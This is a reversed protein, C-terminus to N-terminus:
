HAWDVPSAIETYPCGCQKAFLWVVKIHSHDVGPEYQDLGTRLLNQLAVMHHSLTESWQLVTLQVWVSTGQSRQPGPVVDCSLASAPISHLRILDRWVTQILAETNGADQRTSEFVTSQHGEAKQASTNLFDPKLFDFM